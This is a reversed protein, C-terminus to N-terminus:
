VCSMGNSCVPLGENPPSVFKPLKYFENAEYGEPPKGCPSPLAPTTDRDETWGDGDM